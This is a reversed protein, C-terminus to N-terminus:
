LRGLRKGDRYKVIYADPFGSERIQRLAAEAEELSFYDGMLVRVLKKGPVNETQLDGLGVVTKYRPHGPNHRTVAILQVKYYVGQHPMAESVGQQTDGGGEQSVITQRATEKKKLHVPIELGRSSLNSSSFEFYHSRFGPAAIEIAYKDHEDPFRFRYENGQFERSDLLTCQGNAECIYLIATFYPIDQEGEADYVRGYVEVYEERKGSPPLFFIDEDTTFPKQRGAARNSVLYSGGGEPAKVYYMDDAASNIPMGVNEVLGWQGFTGSSKFVDYGGLSIYGNSAFYLEKAEADYWPTIENGPTNINPGLNVPVSFDMSASSLPRSMYWLDMGGEGGPRNSSFIVVEETDTHYVFPHTTTVDKLNIYDRLREPLSWAAGKRHIVYIECRTTLGGWSEVSKCITFFFRQHDPSFYGNGYHEEPIQPFTGPLRAKSWREGQRESRYIQSRGGRTSSFYLVNRGFPIPAFETQPSNVGPGLHEVEPLPKGSREQEALLQLGLRCGKIKREVELALKKKDPGRYTGIFNAYAREAESYRRSQKLADAYYLGALPYKKHMDKVHQFADAANLYDKIIRYSLGAKYVLFYKRPKKLWAKKYHRAAESYQAKAYLKEALKYHKKWSMEKQAQVPMAALILFAPLILFFRFPNLHLKDM